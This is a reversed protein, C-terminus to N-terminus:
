GVLNPLPFTWPTHADQCRGCDAKPNSRMVEYTWDQGCLTRGPQHEDAFHTM